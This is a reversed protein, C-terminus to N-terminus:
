IASWGGDCPVIAGNVNSAEDSLLWTILAAVQEPSAPAPVVTQLVPGLVAPALRSRMPAEMGTLVGGPAVANARVGQGKHMVATSRTLGILAHKSATYAAGAAAGRLGAESTVNVIAGGGAELMRPLVARTLRMPATVNVALVEEWTTDDVESPALFGDMVGAVNALGHVREGAVALVRQVDEERTVDGAVPVLDLDAHEAAFRELAEAAVDTVVVRAGERALRLATVRGMGGAAGTVVVTRGAFRGQLVGPPPPDRVAAPDTPFEQAAPNAGPAPTERM